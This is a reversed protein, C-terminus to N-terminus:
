ANENASKKKNSQKSSKTDATSAKLNKSREQELLAHLSTVESTLEDRIEQLKLVEALVAAKDKMEGHGLIQCLKKNRSKVQTLEGKLKVVEDKLSLIEQDRQEVEAKLQASTIDDDLTNLRSKLLDKEKSKLIEEKAEKELRQFFETDSPEIIAEKELPTDTSAGLKCFEDLSMTSNKKPKKVSAKKSADDDSALSNVLQQEFELKSLLLVEGLEQNYVEEVTMTDKQRWQEWQQTENDKKKKIAKKKDVKKPQQQSQPKSKDNKKKLNTKGNSTTTKQNKKQKPEDDDISLVAFRSQVMSAM